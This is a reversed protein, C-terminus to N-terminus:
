EARIGVGVIAAPGIASRPREEPVRRRGGARDGSGGGEAVAARPPVTTLIRSENTGDKDVSQQRRIVDVGDGNGLIQRGGRGM